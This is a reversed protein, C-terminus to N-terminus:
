KRGGSRHVRKRLSLNLLCHDSAAMTRHFDKAEPFLNLWDKNAVIRDLRVLTRQEGIRGNCWAFRQGVFGLDILDCDSLCEKFGEM